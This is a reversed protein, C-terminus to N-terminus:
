ILKFEHGSGLASAHKAAIKTGINFNTVYREVAKLISDFQYKNDAPDEITQGQGTGDYFNIILPQPDDSKWQDGIRVSLVFTADRVREDASTIFPKERGEVAFANEDFEAQATITISGKGEPIETKIKIDGVGKYPRQNGRPDESNFTKNKAIGNEIAQTIASAIQRQREMRKELETSQKQADKLKGRGLGPVAEQIKQVTRNPHSSHGANELNAIEHAVTPNEIKGEKTYISFNKGENM